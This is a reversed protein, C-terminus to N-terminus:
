EPHEQGHDQENEVVSEPASSPQTKAPAESTMPAPYFGYMALGGIDGQTADDPLEVFGDVVALPGSSLIISTVDAPAAYRM